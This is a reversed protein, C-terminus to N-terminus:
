STPRTLAEIQRNVRGVDFNAYNNNHTQTIRGGDLLRFWDLPHPYDQFWDAFGIQAQTKQNGITTWYSGRDRDEGDRPLRDPQPGPRPVGHVAPRRPRRPELRLCTRGRAYGSERVLRKAKRLDHPYLDHTRFSPYGPPLVNETTHALGGALRM